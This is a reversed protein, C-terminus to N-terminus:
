KRVIEVRRNLSRGSATENDAIPQTAGKGECTLRSDDVGFTNVLYTKVASARRKSLDLNHDAAGTSDTHGVIHLELDPDRILLQGVPALAQVSDGEIEASDTRFRIGYLALSGEEELKAAIEDTELEGKVSFPTVAVERGDADTDHMRLEWSGAETPAYMEIVGSAKGGLYTYGVDHQDNVDESGHPISAPLIGIWASEAFDDGATFTIKMHEGPLFVDRDLKMAAKSADPWAVEFGAHTIEQGDSDTDHMRLDYRGPEAPARLEDSGHTKGSLYAYGRNAGDNQAESGHPVDSPIIGIWANEPLHEPATFEFKVRAGPAVVPTLVTIKAVSFDPQKVTFTVSAIERGDGDNLRADYSGTKTPATFTLVGQTRDSLYQYTLDHADNVSEDGHPVDSPIIGVWASELGAPASFTIELNQGIWVESTSVTLRADQSQCLTAFSICLFSLRICSCM